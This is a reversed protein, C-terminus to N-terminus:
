DVPTHDDRWAIREYGYALAAQRLDGAITEMEARVVLEGAVNYFSLLVALSGPYLADLPLELRAGGFTTVVLTGGWTLNRRSLSYGVVAFREIDRIQRLDVSIRDADGDRGALLAPRRGSPPAFRRGDALSVTSAGGSRLQYVAGLRLDGVDASTLLDITLHGVGSQVRTLTVTPSTRSLLHQDRGGVRVARERAPLAAARRAPAPPTSPAATPQSESLDLSSSPAPRRTYDIRGGAQPPAPPPPAAARPAHRVYDVRATAPRPRSRRRLFPLDTRPPANSPDGIM